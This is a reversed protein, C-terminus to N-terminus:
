CLPDIELAAVLRRLSTENISESVRLILGSRLVIEVRCDASPRVEVFTPAAASQKTWSRRARKVLDSQTNSTPAKAEIQWRRLSATTTGITSAVQGPDIGGALMKLAQARLASDFRRGQPGKLEVTKKPTIRTIQQNLYSKSM